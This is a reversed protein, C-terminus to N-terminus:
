RKYNGIYNSNNNNNNSNNSNGKNKQEYEKLVELPILDIERKNKNSYSSITDNKNKLISM